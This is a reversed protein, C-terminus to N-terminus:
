KARKKAKAVRQLQDLLKTNGTAVLGVQVLWTTLSAGSSAAAEEFAKGVEIPFRFNYQKTRSM